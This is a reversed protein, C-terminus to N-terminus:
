MTMVGGVADDTDAAAAAAAAAVVVAELPPLPVLESVEERLRLELRSWPWPSASCRLNAMSPRTVVVAAAPASSDIDELAIVVPDLETAM